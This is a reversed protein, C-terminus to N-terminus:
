GDLNGVACRLWSWPEFFGSFGVCYEVVDPTQIIQGVGLGAAQPDADVSLGDNM